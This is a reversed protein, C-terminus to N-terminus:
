IRLKEESCTKILTGYNPDYGARAGAAIIIIFLAVVIAKGISEEIIHIAERM